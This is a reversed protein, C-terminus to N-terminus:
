ETVWMKLRADFKGRFSIEGGKWAKYRDELPTPEIPDGCSITDIEAFRENRKQIERGAIQCMALDLRMLIKRKADFSLEAKKRKGNRRKPKLGARRLANNPINRLKDAYPMDQSLNFDEIYPYSEKMNHALKRDLRDWWALVFDRQTTKNKAYVVSM